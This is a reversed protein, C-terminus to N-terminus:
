DRSGRRLANEAIDTRLYPGWSYDTKVDEPHAWWGYETQFIWGGQVRQLSTHRVKPTWQGVCQLDWDGVEAAALVDNIAEYIDSLVGDPLGDSFLEFVDRQTWLRGGPGPVRSQATSTPDTATM